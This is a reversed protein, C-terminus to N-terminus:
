SQAITLREPLLRGAVLNRCFEHAVACSISLRSCCAAQSASVAGAYCCAALV